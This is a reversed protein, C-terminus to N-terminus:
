ELENWKSIEINNWKTIEQENWTIGAEATAGIGCISIKRPSTNYGFETEVCETEDGATLWQNGGEDWTQELKGGETYFGIYDGIVVPLSVDYQHYGVTAVGVDYHGRATFINTDVQEFIAIILGSTQTEVYIEVSTITGTGDAPDEKQIYTYDAVTNRNKDEAPSGITIATALVVLQFICLTIAIILSIKRM